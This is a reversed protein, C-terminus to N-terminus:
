IHFTSSQTPLPVAKAASNTTHHQGCNKWGLWQLYMIKCVDGLYAGVVMLALSQFSHRSLPSYESHQLSEPLVVADKTYEFQNLLEL